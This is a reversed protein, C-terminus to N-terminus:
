YLYLMILLLNIDEGDAFRHDLNGHDSVYQICCMPYLEQQITFDSKISTRFIEKSYSSNSINM